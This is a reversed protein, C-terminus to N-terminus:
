SRHKRDRAVGPLATLLLGLGVLAIAGAVLWKVASDVLWWPDGTLGIASVTLFVLALVVGIV